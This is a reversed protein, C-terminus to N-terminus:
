GNEKAMSVAMKANGKMLALKPLSALDSFHLTNDERVKSEIQEDALLRIYCKGDRKLNKFFGITTSTVLEMTGECPQLWVEFHDRYVIRHASSSPVSGDPKKDKFLDMSSGRMREISTIGM